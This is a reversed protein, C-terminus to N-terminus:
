TNTITVGRAVMKKALLYGNCRVRAPISILEMPHTQPAGGPFPSGMMGYLDMTLRDIGNILWLYDQSFQHSNIAEPIQNFYHNIGNILNLTVMM